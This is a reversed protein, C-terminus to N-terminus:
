PEGFVIPERTFAYGAWSLRVGDDGDRLVRLREGRERGSVTVFSGDGSPEFVSPPRELPADALRAELRASRWCFVYEVGESWWRGLVGHLEPPVQAGPRWPEGAQPWLEAARAALDLALEELEGAATSNTAVGVALRDARATVFAARHGPMAGGHGAFLREGRRWLQLGLGHARTWADPDAMAHVEHMEEATAPSLVAPDADLLFAGWRALDAPTTWLQGAAAVSGIEVPAERQVADAYPEVFYARASPEVPTWTTRALDLPELLRERVQDRYPRGGRREVVEGLLAYGLNSYHWREGPPLV